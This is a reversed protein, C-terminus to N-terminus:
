ARCGPEFRLQMVGGCCQGLAPGLAFRVAVLSQAAQSPAGLLTRARAIAQYEVHGGGVTGVVADSFAAMWAGAERPVSGQTSAVAVWVAPQRALRALFDPTHHGFSSFVM